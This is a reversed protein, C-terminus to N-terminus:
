REPAITIPVTNKPSPISSYTRGFARSAAAPHNKDAFRRVSPRKRMTVWPMAAYSKSTYIGLAINTEGM